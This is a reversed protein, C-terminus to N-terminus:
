TYGIHVNRALIVCCVEGSISWDRSISLTSISQQRLATIWIWWLGQTSYPKKETVASDTRMWHLLCWSSLLHISPLSPRPTKNAMFGRRERSRGSSMHNRNCCCCCGRETEWDVYTHTDSSELLSVAEGVKQWTIVGGVLKDNRNRRKVNISLFRAERM